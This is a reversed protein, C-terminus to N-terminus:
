QNGGSLTKKLAAAEAKGWAPALPGPKDMEFAAIARDVLARAPAIGGGYEPPTNQAGYAQLLLVRPNNPSIKVAEATLTGIEMGLERGLSPDLAIRFAQLSSLLSYTEAWRLKDSSQELDAIASSLFPAAKQMQGARFLNVVRRYNAYGRYHLLYADKPFATLARDLVVVVRDLGPSDNAAVASDIGVRASDVFKAAPTLTTTQARLEPPALLTLSSAGVIFTAIFLCRGLRRHSSM